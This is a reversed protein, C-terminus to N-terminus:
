DFKLNLRRVLPGMKDYESRIQATIAQPTALSVYSDDSALMKAIEPTKQAANLAANLRNVTEAPLGPPGVIATWSQASVDYGLEKLTPVNPLLPSRSPGSTAIAILKGADIHQKVTILGFLTMSVTGSLMDPMMQTAGYPVHTMSIGLAGTAQEMNLHQSGGIGQSAYTLKGPNAKAYEIWGRADRFPLSPHSVITLSVAYPAHIAVYDREVQPHFTPSAQSAVTLVSDTAFSLLYGDPPAKQVAVVGLRGGAGPRYETVIPQGLTKAAEAYMVRLKNEAPNGPPFPYIVTIPKTPFGQAAVFAPLMAIAGAAFAWMCHPMWKVRTKQDYKTSQHMCWM